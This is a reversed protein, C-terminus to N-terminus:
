SINSEVKLCYNVKNTIISGCLSLCYKIIGFYFYRNFSFNGFPSGTADFWSEADVEIFTDDGDQGPTRIRLADAVAGEVEDPTLSISGNGYWDQLARVQQGGLAWIYEDDLTTPDPAARILAASDPITPEQVHADLTQTHGGAHYRFRLDRDSLKNRFGCELRYLKLFTRPLGGVIVAVVVIDVAHMPFDALKLKSKL